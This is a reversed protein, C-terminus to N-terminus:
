GQVHGDGAVDRGRRKQDHGRKDRGTRLDRDLAHAQVGGAGAEEVREGRHSRVDTDRIVCGLGAFRDAIQGDAMGGEVARFNGAREHHPHNVLEGRKGHGRRIGIAWGSDPFRRFEPVLLRIPDTHQALLQARHPHRNLLHGIPEGQWPVRDRAPPDNVRMPIVAERHGEGDGPQARLTRDGDLVRVDDM